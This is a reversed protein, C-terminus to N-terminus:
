GEKAAREPVGMTASCKKERAAPLARLTESKRRSFILSTSGLRTCSQQPACACAMSTRARLQLREVSLQGTPEDVTLEASSGSEAM